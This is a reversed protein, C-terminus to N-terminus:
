IHGGNGSRSRELAASIGMEVCTELFVVSDEQWTKKNFDALLFWCTEDPLLPYVGITHKGALHDHIVSKFCGLLEEPQCAGTTPIRM